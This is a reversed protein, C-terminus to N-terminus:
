GYQHCFRALINIDKSLIFTKTAILHSSKLSFMFAIEERKCRM